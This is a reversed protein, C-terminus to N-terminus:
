RVSIWRTGFVLDLIAVCLPEKGFRVFSIDLHAGGRSEVKNNKSEEWRHIGKRVNAKHGQLQILANKM